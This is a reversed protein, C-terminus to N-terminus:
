RQYIEDKFKWLKKYKPDYKELKILNEFISQAKQAENALHYIKLATILNSHYRIKENFDLFAQDLYHIAKEYEKLSGYVLGLELMLGKKEIDLFHHNAELAENLIKISKKKNFPNVRSIAYLKLYDNYTVPPKIISGYKILQFCTIILFIALYIYIM